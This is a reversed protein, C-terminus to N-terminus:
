CTRTEESRNEKARVVLTALFDIWNETFTIGSGDILTGFRGERDRVFRIDTPLIANHTLECRMFKYLFHDLTIRRGRYIFEWLIPVDGVEEDIFAKFAEADGMERSNDTRSRTGVPFRKRSTAALAILIMLLAGEFRGAAHLSSADQLRAVVSM